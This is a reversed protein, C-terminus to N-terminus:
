PSSKAPKTPTKAPKTPTTPQVTGKADKCPTEILAFKVNGTEIMCSKGKFTAPLRTKFSNYRSKEMIAYFRREKNLKLFHKFDADERIPIVENQTYFTEGRWNLKYSLSQEACYRKKKDHGPPGETRECREYYLDWVGKQSWTSSLTPMYDWLGFATMMVAAAMTVAAGARRLRTRQWAMLLVGITGIGVIIGTKIQLMEDWSHDWKRDYKYTFLNKFHQPEQVLDWGIFLTLGMVLAYLIWSLRRRRADASILDDITLAALFACAPVAPFIYHHFKTSSLTFLTFTFVAWIVLFLTAKQKDDRGGLRRGGFLRVLAAPVFGIWPWMGYGLWKVYHEFSGSDIQHVGTALRKFHDHIFFRQFYPYGHRVMMAVYWPFGVAIFIAAGRPIEMELLRKWEGTLALYFFIFAGPLALGLLGKSISALAIFIYFGFLHIQRYTPPELRRLVTVFVVAVLSAYITVLTPGWLFFAAVPGYQAGRWTALGTGVVVLQPLVALAIGGLMAWVEKPHAHAERDRGFIAMVFFCLGITMNGVFPMDTQAQRSLFFFFPSTGMVAAMLFGVRRNWVREGMSFAMVVAGISILTVGLRVGWESFGFIEMGAAMMWMLFIPKSFFPRGEMAGSGNKWLSGWWTSIWDNRETIQRGVEGYHTEWPDWLGFSGLLPLFLAAAASAVLARDRWLAKRAADMSTQPEQTAPEPPTQLTQETSM